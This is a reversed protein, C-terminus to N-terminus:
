CVVSLPATSPDIVAPVAPAEETSSSFPQETLRPASALPGQMVPIHQFTPVYAPVTASSAGTTLVLNTTPTSAEKASAPRRQSM